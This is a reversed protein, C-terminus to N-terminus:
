EGRCIGVQCTGDAFPDRRRDKARGRQYEEAHRGRRAQEPQGFPRGFCLGQRKRSASRRGQRCRVPRGVPPTLGNRHTHTQRPPKAIGFCVVSIFYFAKCRPISTPSGGWAVGDFFLPPGDPGKIPCLDRGGLRLRLKGPRVEGVGSRGPQLLFPVEIRGLGTKRETVKDASAGERQQKGEAEGCKPPVM